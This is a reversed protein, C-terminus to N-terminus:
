NNKEEKQKTPLGAKVKYIKGCYPCLAKNDKIALYVLPHTSKQDPGLCKIIETKHDPIM